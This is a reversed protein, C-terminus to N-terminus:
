AKQDLWRNVVAAIRELPAVVDVVGLDAAAKPMGYILSTGKDQALTAGGAAKIAALGKAGDKGMGTLVIGITSPGFIQAASLLTPDAAPRVGHQPPDDRLVIKGERDFVLHKGGPALLASGAALQQGARAERISYESAESLQEALADTFGDPMHQVIVLATRQLELEPLLRLLAQPGGTSSAIVIVRCGLPARPTRGLSRSEPASPEHSSSPASRPKSRLAAPRDLAAVNASAATVLAQLLQNKAEGLHASVEGSPKTVFDIAGAALAALTEKAGEQTHASLMIIPVRRRALIARTVEAGNMGPMNYDMTIVDPALKQALEIAESGTAASGVVEFRGDAELARSIVSRMFASDDTILM